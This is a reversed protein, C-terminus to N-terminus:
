PGACDPEMEGQRRMEPRVDPWRGGIKGLRTCCCSASSGVLKSLQPVTSGPHDALTRLLTTTRVQREVLASGKGGKSHKGGIAGFPDRGHRTVILNEASANWEDGDRPRVAGHPLEGTAVVWAVKLLAIRRTVGRFQLRVMPKGDPGAMGAPGGARLNNFRTHDDSREPFHDAPRELWILQRDRIDFCERIFEIPVPPQTQYTRGM